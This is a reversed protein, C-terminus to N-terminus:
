GRPLFAPVTEDKAEIHPALRPDIELRITRYRRALDALLQRLAERHDEYSGILVSVENWYRDQQWSDEDWHGDVLHLSTPKDTPYTVVYTGFPTYYYDQNRQNTRSQIQDLTLYFRSVAKESIAPTRIEM